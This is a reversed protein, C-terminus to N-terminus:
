FIKVRYLLFTMLTKFRCKHLSINESLCRCLTGKNMDEKYIKKNKQVKFANFLNLLQM